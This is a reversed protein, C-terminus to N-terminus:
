AELALRRHCAAEDVLRSVSVPVADCSYTTNEFTQTDTTSSFNKGWVNSLTQSIFGGVTGKYPEANEPEFVYTCTGDELQSRLLGSRM